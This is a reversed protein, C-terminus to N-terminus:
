KMLFNELKALDLGELFLEVEDLNESGSYMINLLIDKNLIVNVEVFLHEDSISFLADYQSNVKKIYSGQIDDLPLKENVFNIYEEISPDRMVINLDLFFGENTQYRKSFVIGFGDNSNSFDDKNNALVSFFIGFKEPFFFEIRNSYNSRVQKMLLELTEFALTYDDQKLALHLKNMSDDYISVESVNPTPLLTNEDDSDLEAALSFCSCALLVIFFFRIFM